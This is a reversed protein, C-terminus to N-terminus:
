VSNFHSEAESLNPDEIPQTQSRGIDNRLSRSFDRAQVLVGFKWSPINDMLVGPPLIDNSPYGGPRKLLITSLEM